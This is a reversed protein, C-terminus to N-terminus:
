EGIILEAHGRKYSKFNNEATQIAKAKSSYTESKQYIHSNVNDTRIYWSGSTGKLVKILYKARKKRGTNEMKIEKEKKIKEAPPYNFGCQRNIQKDMEEYTKGSLVNAQKNSLGFM